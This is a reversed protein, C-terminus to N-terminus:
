DLLCWEGLEEASIRADIRMGAVAIVSDRPLYCASKGAGTYITAISSVFEAVPVESRYYLNRGIQLPISGERPIATVCEVRQSSSAKGLLHGVVAAEDPTLGCLGDRRLSTWARLSELRPFLQLQVSGRSRKLSFYREGLDGEHGGDARRSALLSPIAPAIADLMDSGSGAVGLRGDVAIRQAGKTATLKGPGGSMQVKFGRGALHSFVGAIQADNLKPLPLFYRGLSPIQLQHLKFRLM